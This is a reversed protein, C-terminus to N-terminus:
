LGVMHFEALLTDAKYGTDIMKLVRSLMTKM